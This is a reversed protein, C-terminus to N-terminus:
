KGPLLGFYYGAMLLVFIGISVGVRITLAKAMRTGQGKDKLLFFLGSFLSAIVVLLLLVIVVKM